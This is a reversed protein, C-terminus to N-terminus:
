GRRSPRGVLDAAAGLFLVTAVEALNVPGSEARAPAGDARVPATLVVVPRRRGVLVAPIGLGILMVAWRVLNAPDGGTRPLEGFGQTVARAADRTVVTAPSPAAAPAPQEVVLPLVVPADPRLPPASPAAGAGAGAGGGVTGWDPVPAPPVICLEAEANYRQCIISVSQNLAVAPGTQLSATSSAYLEAAETRADTGVVVYSESTTVAVNNGTNALSLAITITGSVQRIRIRATPDTETGEENLTLDATEVLGSLDVEVEGLRLVSSLTPLGASTPHALADLFRALELGIDSLQGITGTGVRNGAENLGSNAIALGTNTVLASQGAVAMGHQAQAVVTQSVVTTSRNGVAHAGGTGIAVTGGTPTGLTGDWGDGGLLAGVLM